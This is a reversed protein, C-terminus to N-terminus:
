QIVSVLRQGGPDSVQSHEALLPVAARRGRQLLAAQGEATRQVEAKPCHDQCEHCGGRSSLNVSM